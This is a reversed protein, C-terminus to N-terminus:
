LLIGMELCVDSFDDFIKVIWMINCFLNCDVLCVFFGIIDGERM